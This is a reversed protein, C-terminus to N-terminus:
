AQIFHAERGAAIWLVDDSDVGLWGAVAGYLSREWGIRQGNALRPAGAACLVGALVMTLGVIYLAALRFDYPYTKRQATVMVGYVHAAAL